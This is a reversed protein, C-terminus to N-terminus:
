YYSIIEVDSLEYVSGTWNRGTLTGEITLMQKKNLSLALTAQRLSFVTNTSFMTSTPVESCDMSVRHEVDVNIVEGRWRVRKRLVSQWLTDRMAYSQASTLPHDAHSVPDLYWNLYEITIKRDLTGRTVAPAPPTTALAAPVQESTASPAQAPDVNSRSPAVSPAKPAEQRELAVTLWPLLAVAAVMSM